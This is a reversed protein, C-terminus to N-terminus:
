AEEAEETAELVEDIEDNGFSEKNEIMYDIMEEPYIYSFENTYNNYVYDFSNINGYGDFQFYNRNPNASGNESYDDSGFYFRNVWYLGGENSNNIMEELTYDDFIEDDYRNSAYCYENWLSVIESDDMAKIINMIKEEM